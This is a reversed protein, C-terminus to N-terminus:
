DLKKAPNFVFGGGGKKAKPVEHSIYLAETQARPFLMLCYNLLVRWLDKTKVVFKKDNFELEVTDKKVHMLQLAFHHVDRGLPIVNNEINIKPVVKSKPGQGLLAHSFLMFFSYSEETTKFYPTDSNMKKEIFYMMELQHEITDQYTWREQRYAM